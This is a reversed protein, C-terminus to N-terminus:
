RMSNDDHFDTLLKYKQKNILRALNRQKLIYIVNGEDYQNENNIEQKIKDTYYKLDKKSPEVLEKINTLEKVIAGEIYAQQEKSNYFVVNAMVLDRQYNDHSTYSSPCTNIMKDVLFDISNEVMKYYALPRAGTGRIFGMDPVVTSYRGGDLSVKLITEITLHRYKLKLYSWYMEIKFQDVSIAEVQNRKMDDEEFSIFFDPNLNYVFGKNESEAIYSWNQTDRLVFKYREQISLDLHFQKKWLAKVQYFKTNKNIPTNVDGIRSFIQGPTIKRGEGSKTPYQESLYVPVYKTDPIRLIDVEHEDIEITEVLLQPIADNAIPLHSIFDIINQQNKRNLDDEVGVIERQDSVGFVLYCEENHVTNVFSFIDKIFESREGSKYWKEKFDHYESEKETLLKRLKELNMYERGKLIMLPM